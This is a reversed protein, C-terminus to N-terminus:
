LWMYIASALSVLLFALPLVNFSTTTTPDIPDLARRQNTHKKLASKLRAHQSEVILIARRVSVILPVYSSADANWDVDSEVVKSERVSNEFIGARSPIAWVHITKGSVTHVVMGWRNEVYDLDNWPVVFTRAPNVIYLGASTGNATPTTSEQSSLNTVALRPNFYALWAVATVTTSLPLAFLGERWGGNITSGAIIVVALIILAFGYLRTGKGRLVYTM